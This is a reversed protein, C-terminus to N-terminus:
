PQRQRLTLIVSFMPPFQVIERRVKQYDSTECLLGSLLEIGDFFYFIQRFM